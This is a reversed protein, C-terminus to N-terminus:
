DHTKAVTDLLKRTKTESGQLAKQASVTGKLLGGRVNSESSNLYRSAAMHASSPASTGPCRWSRSVCVKNHTQQFRVKTQQESYQSPRPGRRIQPFTVEVGSEVMFCHKRVQSETPLQMDTCAVGSFLSRQRRVWRIGPVSRRVQWGPLCDHPWLRQQFSLRGWVEQNATFM